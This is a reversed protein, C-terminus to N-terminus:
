VTRTDHNKELNNKIEDISVGDCYEKYIKHSLDDMFIFADASFLNDLGNDRQLYVEITKIDIFRKHFGM